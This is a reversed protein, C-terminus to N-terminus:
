KRYTDSRGTEEQFSIQGYAATFRVAACDDLPMKASLNIASGRCNCRGQAARRQDNKLCPGSLLSLFEAKAWPLSQCAEHM